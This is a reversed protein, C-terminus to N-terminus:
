VFGFAVWHIGIGYFVHLNLFLLEIEESMFIMLGGLGGERAPAPEPPYETPQSNLRHQLRSKLHSLPV